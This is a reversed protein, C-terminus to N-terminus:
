ATLDQRARAPVGDAPEESRGASEEGRRGEIRIGASEQLAASGVSQNRRAEGGRSRDVGRRRDAQGGFDLVRAHPGRARRPLDVQLLRSRDAGDGLPWPTRVRDRIALLDAESDVNLALHQMVGAAVPAATWARIRCARSRSSNRRDGAGARLRDLQQGDARLWPLDQGRWADLLAGCLDMGVVQTYFEIQSKIDKTCIALHHVGNPLGM